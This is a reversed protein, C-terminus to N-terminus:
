AQLDQDIEPCNFYSPTSLLDFLQHIMLLQTFLLLFCDLLFPPFLKQLLLKLNQVTLISYYRMPSFILRILFLCTQYQLLLLM